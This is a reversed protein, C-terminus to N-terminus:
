DDSGDSSVHLIPTPLEKGDPGTLEQRQSYKQKGMREAIFKATDQKIKVLQHSDLPSLIALDLMEDLVREAKALRQFDRIIEAFWETKQNGISEAYEQEYGARLASQLANGFTESNPNLYYEKFLTQKPSLESGKGNASMSTDLPDNVKSPRKM